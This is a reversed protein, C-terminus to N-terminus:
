LMSTRRAGEAHRVVVGDPNEAVVKHLPEYVLELLDQIHNSSVAVYSLAARQWASM